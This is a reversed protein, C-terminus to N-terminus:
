PQEAGRVVAGGKGRVQAQAERERMEDAGMAAVSDRARNALLVPGRRALRVAAGRPKRSCDPGEAPSGCGADSTHTNTIQASVVACAARRAFLMSRRRSCMALPISEGM